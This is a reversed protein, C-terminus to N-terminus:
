VVRWPHVSRVTVEEIAIWLRDLLEAKEGYDGTVGTPHLRGIMRDVYQAARDGLSARIKRFASQASQWFFTGTLPAIARRCFFLALAEDYTFGLQPVSGAGITFTKRGFEGVTEVVPFGVKQLLALDRRVTKDSAGSLAVLSKVTAQGDAAAIARLLAWQRLLPSRDEM